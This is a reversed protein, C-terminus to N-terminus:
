EDEEKEESVVPCNMCDKNCELGYDKYYVLNREHQSMKLMKTAIELCIYRDNRDKNEEKKCCDICHQIHHDELNGDDLVIHLLGGSCEELDNYLLNVLKSVYKVAETEYKCINNM